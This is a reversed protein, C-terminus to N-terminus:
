DPVKANRDSIVYINEIPYLAIPCVYEGAQEVLLGLAELVETMETSILNNWSEISLPRGEVLIWMLADLTDVLPPKHNQRVESTLVQYISAVEARACLSADNFDADQLMMNLAAFQEDTGFRIPLM